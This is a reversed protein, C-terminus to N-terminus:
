NKKKRYARPRCGKKPLSSVDIRVYVINHSFTILLLGSRSVRGASPGFPNITYFLTVGTQAVGNNESALSSRPNM